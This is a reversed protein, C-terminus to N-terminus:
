NGTKLVRVKETVIKSHNPGEESRHKADLFGYMWEKKHYIHGNKYPNDDISRKEIFALRGEEYATRM